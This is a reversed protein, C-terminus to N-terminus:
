SQRRGAASFRGSRSAPEPSEGSCATPWRGSRVSTTAQWSAVLAPIVLAAGIGELISWGLMLIPVSWLGRHAGIGVGYIVLGITFVRRRGWIDGLKAGTVM